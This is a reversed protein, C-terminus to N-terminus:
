VGETCYPCPYPCCYPPPPPPEVQEADEQDDLEIRDLQYCATELAVLAQQTAGVKIATKATLHLCRASKLAALKDPRPHNSAETWHHALIIQVQSRLPSVHGTLVPPHVLHTWKTRSPPPPPAGRLRRLQPLVRLARGGDPAAGSPSLSSVHGILVSPPVRRTWKTRPPPPLVRQYSKLLAGRTSEVLDPTALRYFLMLPAGGGGEDSMTSLLSGASGVRELSGPGSGARQSSFSGPNLPLRM